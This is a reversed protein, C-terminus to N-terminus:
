VHRLADVVHLRAVRRAPFWAAGVTAVFGVLFATVVTAVDIEIRATYGASSNPPPPMPIGIASIAWALLCGILAGGGSGILALLLNEQLVLRFVSSGHTGLAMLTGFEGTREFVNMNVANIVSLLVAVLIIIELVVFQRQYLRATNDYFDALQRWTKFEYKTKDLRDVLTATVADTKETEKLLIVVANVAPTGLLEQAAPLSIRVARSDYDKSFSRFIGAVTFDGSNLAGDLTHVLITARDGVKLKMSAAVGEGIFVGNSDRDDLSKGSVVALLSGLKKEKAPEVGEGVIAFDARGNNIVGSFNLRSMGEDVDPLKRAIDLIESPREIMYKDPSRSGGDYFGLRYIQLHGLQGHITAERLQLLADNVFGGSLILGAVGTVIVTLTLSTRAKNRFINRLALAFM